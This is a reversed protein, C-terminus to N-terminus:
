KKRVEALVEDIMAVLDEHSLKFDSDIWRVRLVDLTKAFVPGKKVHRAILDMGTLPFKPPTWESIENFLDTYNKYKLLELVKNIVKKEKGSLRTILQKYYTCPDDGELCDRYNVVFLCTKLEDNSVKLRQQVKYVQIIFLVFYLM